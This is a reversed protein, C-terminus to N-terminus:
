IVGREPEETVCVLFSERFRGQGEYIGNIRYVDERVHIRMLPTVDARYRIRWVVSTASVLEVGLVREAVGKSMKEAPLRKLLLWSPIPEGTTPDTSDGRIMINIRRDLKGTIIM